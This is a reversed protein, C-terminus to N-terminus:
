SEQVESTQLPQLKSRIISQCQSITTSVQGTNSAQNM